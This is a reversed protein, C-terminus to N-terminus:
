RKVITDMMPDDIGPSWSLREIAIPAGQHQYIQRLERTAQQVSIGPRAGISRLLLGDPTEVVELERGKTWGLRDRVDKPIVVQGKASLKTVDNM